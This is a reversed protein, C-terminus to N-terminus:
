PRPREWAAAVKEQLLEKIWGRQCIERRQAEIQRRIAHSAEAYTATHEPTIAECRVVHFGLETEV